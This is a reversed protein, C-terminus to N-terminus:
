REMWLRTMEICEIGLIGRKRTPGSIRSGQGLVDSDNDDVPIM